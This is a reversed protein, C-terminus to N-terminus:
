IDRRVVENLINLIVTIFILIFGIIFRLLVSSRHHFYSQGHRLQIDQVINFANNLSRFRWFVIWRCILLEVLTSSATFAGVLTITVPVGEGSFFNMMVDMMLKGVLVPIIIQLFVTSISWWTIWNKWSFSFYYFTSSKTHDLKITYPIFGCGQFLSILPRLEEIISM